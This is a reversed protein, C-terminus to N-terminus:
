SFRPGGGTKRGIRRGRGLGRGLGRGRGRGTKPLHDNQELPKVEVKKEEKEGEGLKEIAGRPCVTEGGCSELKEQNMIEAKGDAGMRMAEPCNNMCIQCGICKEKNVQYNM